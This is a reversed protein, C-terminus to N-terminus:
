REFVVEGEVITMRVPTTPDFPDGAFLSLNADYGSEVSGMSDSVGLIEAARSTVAALAADRSLGGAVAMAVQVRLWQTTPGRGSGIAVSIGRGELKAALAALREYGLAETPQKVPALVVPVNARAIEDMVLDAEDAGELVLKLRFERGFALAARIEDARRAEFRVATEHRLAAVCASLQPNFDPKKPREVSKPADKKPADQYYYVPIEPGTPHDHHPGPTGCGCTEVVPEPEKAQDDLLVGGSEDEVVPPIPLFRSIVFLDYEEPTRPPRRGRPVPGPPRPSPSEEAPKQAEDSAPAVRAGKKKDDLFKKLDEEYQDLSERLKQADRFTRRLTTWDNLRAVVNGSRVSGGVVTLASADEVELKEVDYEKPRLAVLAGSGPLLGLGSSLYCFAVGQANAAAIRGEADVLDLGDIARHHPAIPTGDALADNALPTGGRADIWGATLTSGKGDVRRANNPIEVKNGVAVIKRGRVVVTADDLPEKGPRLVRVHEIAIPVGAPAPRADRRQGGRRAGPRRPGEGEETPRSEAPRSAPEQKADDQAAAAHAEGSTWYAGAALACILVISPAALPHANRGPASPKPTM